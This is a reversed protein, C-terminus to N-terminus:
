GTGTHTARAPARSGIAQPVPLRVPLQPEAVAPARPGASSELSVRMSGSGGGVRGRGRYARNRQTSRRAGRQTSSAAYWHWSEAATTTRRYHRQLSGAARGGARANQATELSIRANGLLRSIGHTPRRNTANQQAKSCKRRGLAELLQVLEGMAAEDQAESMAGDTMVAVRATLADAVAAAHAPSLARAIEQIAAALM